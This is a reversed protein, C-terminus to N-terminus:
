ITANQTNFNSLDLKILNYCNYFMYNLRKIVNQFFYIINFNGVSAFKYTCSFPIFKGEIQIKCQKIEKENRFNEELTCESYQSKARRVAEYSNIISINKNIDNSDIKIKAIIYNGNNNIKKNKKNTNIPVINKSKNNINSKNLPNFIKKDM